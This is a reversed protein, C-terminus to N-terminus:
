VRNLTIKERSLDPSVIVFPLIANIIQMDWGEIASLEYISLLSGYTERYELFSAIQFNSLLSMSSLEERTAINLNLPSEYYITLTEFLTNFDLEDNEASEAIQEIRQEIIGGGVQASMRFGCLLIILF